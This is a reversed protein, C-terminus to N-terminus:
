KKTSSNGGSHKVNSPFVNKHLVVVRNIMFKDLEPHAITMCLLLPKDVHGSLEATGIINFLHISTTIKHEWLLKQNNHVLESM